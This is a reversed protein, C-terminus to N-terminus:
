GKVLCRVVEGVYMRHYDARPYIVPAIAKDVFKEPEIDQAYLKRCELALRAEAFYVAGSPAVLPTLGTAAVKDVDRGSKSGCFDLAPRHEEAFHSLTFYEAAEMFGFTHRHPRIFCIAVPKGWLEGWTGWSATMTNFSEHTGATILMWEQGIARFANDGIQSPAIETFTAEM